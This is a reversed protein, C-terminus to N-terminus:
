LPMLNRDHNLQGFNDNHDNVNIKNESYETYRDM